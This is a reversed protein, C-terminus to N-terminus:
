RAVGQAAVVGSLCQQVLRIPGAFIQCYVVERYVTIRALKHLAHQFPGAQGNM